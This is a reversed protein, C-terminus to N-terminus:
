VDRPPKDLAEGGGSKAEGEEELLPTSKGTLRNDVATGDSLAGGNEQPYMHVGTLTVYAPQQKNHGLFSYLWVALVGMGLAGGLVVGLILLYDPGIREATSEPRSIVAVQPYKEVRSIEIQVLRAQTERNLEELGELDTVLAEHTSFITSFAAVEQKHEELQRELETVTRSAATYAQQAAALEVQQGENLRSSIEQKLVEIRELTSRMAPQKNIYQDTYRNQLELMQAQLTQLETELRELDTVLAEYTAFITSFTAM